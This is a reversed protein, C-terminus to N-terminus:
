ETENESGSEQSGDNLIAAEVGGSTVVSSTNAGSGGSLAADTGNVTSDYSTAGDKPADAAEYSTDAAYLFSNCIIFSFVLSSLLKM